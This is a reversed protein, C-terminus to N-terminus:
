KKIGRNKEQIRRVMRVVWNRPLFRYANSFFKNFLGPIAIIKGQHMSRIAYNAVMSASDSLLSSKTFGANGEGVVKQFGTRTLGPCLVTVTVGTDKLENALAESFSIIYAKSANYVAMLPSPLFGAVSAVNMIRGSRNSLMGPLFLKTLHTLTEIHLRIMRKEREWAVDKFHGLVGFGANNVLVHLVDHRKGVEDFIHNSSKEDCLDAVLAIVDVGPSDEEIREQLRNLAESRNDVIYITYGQSALKLAIEAGIGGGAGTILAVKNM